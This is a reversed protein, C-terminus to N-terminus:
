FGDNDRKSFFLFAFNRSKFCPHMTFECAFWALHKLRFLFIFKQLVCTKFRLVRHVSEIQTLFQIKKFFFGIINVNCVTPLEQLSIGRVQSPFTKVGM